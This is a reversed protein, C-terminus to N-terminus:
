ALAPRHATPARTRFQYNGSFEHRNAEDQGMPIPGSQIATCGVVWVEDPGGPDLLVGDLCTLADYVQQWLGIAPLPDHKPGRALTQLTPLDTPRRTLQSAGGTPMLMLALDPSDPMHGVFVNGGVTAENLAVIGFQDLYRAVALALM